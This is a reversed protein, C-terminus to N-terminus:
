VGLIIKTAEKRSLNYKSMKELILEEVTEDYATRISDSTPLKNQSLTVYLYVIFMFVLALIYEMNAQM